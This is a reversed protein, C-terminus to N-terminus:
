NENKGYREKYFEVIKRLEEQPLGKQWKHEQRSLISDKLKEWRQTLGTDNKHAVAQSAHPILHFYFNLAVEYLGHWHSYDPSMMAAGHRARRGEHHWLHWWDIEVQENFSFVPDPLKLHFKRGESL